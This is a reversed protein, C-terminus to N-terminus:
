IYVSFFFLVEEQHISHVGIGRITGKRVSVNIWIHYSSDVGGGGLPMTTACYHAELCHFILRINLFFIIIGYNLTRLLLKM